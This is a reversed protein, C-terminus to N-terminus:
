PRQMNENTTKMEQFHSQQSVETFFISISFFLGRSSLAAVAFTFKKQHNGGLIM